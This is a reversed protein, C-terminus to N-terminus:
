LYTYIFLFVIPLQSSTRTGETQILSIDSAFSYDLTNSMVPILGDECM